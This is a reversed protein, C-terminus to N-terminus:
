NYDARGRDYPRGLKNVHQPVRPRTVMARAEVATVDGRPGIEIVVPDTQEHWVELKGAGEPIRLHFAGGGDPSTSFPTDVVAIYAAMSQHVNCFVRVMGPQKFSVSKGPGQRYLGLDFRNDGSVSFVNHLIPDENPFIVTGGIPVVLLRPQFEKKRTAMSYPHAPVSRQAPKAPRFMVVAARPDAARDPTRGDKSLLVVTGTLDRMAAEALGACSLLAV